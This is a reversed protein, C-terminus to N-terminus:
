ASDKGNQLSQLYRDVEEDSLDDLNLLLQAPDDHPVTIKPEPSRASVPPAPQDSLKPLIETQLFTVLTDMTRYEFALTSSLPHSLITRIRNSLEVAMLSDLGFETMSQHPNLNETSKLGLVIGLQAAVLEMLIKRQDQTAALQLKALWGQEEAAAPQPSLPAAAILDQLLPPITDGLSRM